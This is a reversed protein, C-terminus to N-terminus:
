CLVHEYLFLCQQLRRIRRPRPWTRAPLELYTLFRNVECEALKRPHTSNHLV